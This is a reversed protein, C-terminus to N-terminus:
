NQSSPEYALAIPTKLCNPEGVERYCLLCFTNLDLIYHGHCLGIPEGIGGFFINILPGDIKTKIAYNDYFYDLLDTIRMIYTDFERKIDDFKSKAINYQFEAEDVALRAFRKSNSINQVQKIAKAQQKRRKRNYSMRLKGPSIPSQNIRRRADKAVNIKKSAKEVEAQAEDLLKKLRRIDDRWETLTIM